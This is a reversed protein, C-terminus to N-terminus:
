QFQRCLSYALRQIWIESLSRFYLRGYCPRVYISDEIKRFALMGTRLSQPM